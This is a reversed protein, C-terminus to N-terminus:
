SEQKVREVFLEGKIQEAVETIDTFPQMLKKRKVGVPTVNVSQHFYGSLVVYHCLGNSRQAGRHRSSLSSLSHGVSNQTIPFRSGKM